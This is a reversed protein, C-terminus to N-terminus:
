FGSTKHFMILLVIALCGNGRRVVNVTPEAAGRGCLWPM